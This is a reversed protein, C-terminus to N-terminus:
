SSRELRSYKKCMAKWFGDSLDNVIIDHKPFAEYIIKFMSEGYRQNQYRPELGMDAIELVKRKKNKWFVVGSDTPNFAYDMTIRRTGFVYVDYKEGLYKMRTLKSFGLFPLEKNFRKKIEYYKSKISPKKYPYFKFQATKIKAKAM